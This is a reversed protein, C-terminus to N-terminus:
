LYFDKEQLPIAIVRALCCILTHCTMSKRGKQYLSPSQIANRRWAHTATKQRSGTIEFNTHVDLHIHRILNVLLIWFMLILTVSLSSSIASCIRSGHFIDSTFNEGSAPRRSMYISKSFPVEKEQGTQPPGAVPYSVFM